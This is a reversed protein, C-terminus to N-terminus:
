RFFSLCGMSGLSEATYDAMFDLVPFMPVLAQTGTLETRMLPVRSCGFLTPHVLCGLPLVQPMESWWGLDKLLFNGFSSGMAEVWPAIM